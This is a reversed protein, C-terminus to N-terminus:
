AVVRTSNSREKATSKRRGMNPLVGGTFKSNGFFLRADIFRDLSKKVAFKYFNRM